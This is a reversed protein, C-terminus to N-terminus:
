KLLPKTLRRPTFTNQTYLCECGGGPTPDSPLYIAGSFAANGDLLVDLGEM